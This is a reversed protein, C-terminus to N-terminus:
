KMEQNESKSEKEKIEKEMREREEIRKRADEISKDENKQTVRRIQIAGIAAILSLLLLLPLKSFIEHWSSPEYYANNFRNINGTFKDTFVMLTLFTVFIMIGFKLDNSKITKM